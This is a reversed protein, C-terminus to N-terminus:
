TTLKWDTNTLGVARYWNNNVVDFADAGIHSPTFVGNPNGSSAKYNEIGINSNLFHETSNRIGGSLFQNSSFSCIEEGGNFYVGFSSGSKFVNAAYVDGGYNSALYTVCALPTATETRFQNGSIASHQTNRFSLNVGTNSILTNGSIVANSSNRLVICDSAQTKIYNNSIVVEPSRVNIGEDISNTIVNGDIIVGEITESFDCNIGYSPSNLIANSTVSINKCVPTAGLGIDISANTLANGSLTVNDFKLGLQGDFLKIGNPSCDRISNGTISVNEVNEECQIFAKCNGNGDLVNDAITCNIVGKDMKILGTTFLFDGTTQNMKVINNTISIDRAISGGQGQSLVALSPCFMKNGTVQIKSSDIFGADTDSVIRIATVNIDNPAAIFKNNRININDCGNVTFGNSPTVSDYIIQIDSVTIFSKAISHFVHGGVCSSGDIISGDGEGFLTVNSTPLLTLNVTWNGVPIYISKKDSGYLNFAHQIVSSQDSGDTLAGLERINITNNKITLSISQATTNNAVINFTNATGTGAIVTFEAGRDKLQIVKGVPFAKAFTKYAAVTDFVYSLSLDNINLQDIVAQNSGTINDALKEANITDNADAEAETPFLWLDYSGDIYPIVLTGGASKLFGDANLQVKAVTIAAGSDLAIIKPTTTGPEYAKLWENKYDRYNPAVLAIPSYAM